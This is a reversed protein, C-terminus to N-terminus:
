GKGQVKAHLQADTLRSSPIDRGSAPAAVLMMDTRRGIHHMSTLRAQTRRMQDGLQPYWSSIGLMGDKERKQMETGYKKTTGNESPPTSYGMWRLTTIRQALRNQFPPQYFPQCTLNAFM